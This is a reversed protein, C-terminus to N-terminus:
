SARAARPHVFCVQVVSRGMSTPCCRAVHSSHSKTNAFKTQRVSTRFTNCVLINGLSRSRIRHLAQVASIQLALCTRAVPRQPEGLSPMGQRPPLVEIWTPLVLMDAVLHRVHSRHNAGTKMYVGVHLGSWWLLYRTINCHAQQLHQISHRHIQSLAQHYM